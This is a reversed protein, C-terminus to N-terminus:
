CGKLLLNSDSSSLCELVLRDIRDNTKNGFSQNHQENILQTTASDNDPSIQCHTACENDACYKKGPKGGTSVAGTCM